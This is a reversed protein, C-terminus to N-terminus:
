YDQAAINTKVELKGDITSVTKSQVKQIHPNGPLSGEKWPSSTGYIGLDTGDTGANHAASTALVHYDQNNKFLDTSSAVINNHCNYLSSVTSRFSNNQFVTTNSPDPSAVYSLFINNRFFCGGFSGGLFVNNDAFSNAIFGYVNGSVICKTLQFGQSSNGYVSGNLVCESILIQSSKTALNVDSGIDCREISFYNLSEGTSLSFTFGGGIKMGTMSGHDSGKKITFSGTVQTIRTAICSDPNFGVGVIHLKKDIPKSVTFNGGPLYIYDGAHAKVIATDLSAYFSSGTDGQVAIMTQAQVGVFTAMTLLVTLITPKMYFHNQIKPKQDKSQKQSQETKYLSLRVQSALNQSGHYEIRDKRVSLLDVNVLPKIGLM